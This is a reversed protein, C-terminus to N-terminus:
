GAGCEPCDPRRTVPVRVLAPSAAALDLELRADLQPPAYGTLLKLAELAMLSGVAGAAPGLVGDPITSPEPEACRWCASEGPRIAMLAGSSGAARGLVGPVGAALLLENLSSPGVLGDHGALLGRAHAADFRAEYPVVEVEPNLFGLKAAASHAKPVGLDPTFHLLQRQLDALGVRDDDAIGLRGVGAAALYLAVPTGLAGAGVVLVSAGRLALQARESWEPLALQSAYREREADSLEDPARQARTEEAPEEEGGLLAERAEAVADRGAGGVGKVERATRALERLFGRRPSSV